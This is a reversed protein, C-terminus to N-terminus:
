VPFYLTFRGDPLLPELTKDPGEEDVDDLNLQARGVLERDVHCIARIVFVCFRKNYYLNTDELNYELCM